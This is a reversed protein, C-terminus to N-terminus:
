NTGNQANTLQEFAYYLRLGEINMRRPDVDGIDVLEITKSLQQIYTVLQEAIKPSVVVGDRVTELAGGGVVLLGKIARIELENRELYSVLYEYLIGSFHNKAENLIDVVDHQTNGQMLYGTKFVERIAADSPVYDYEKSLRQKCISEINRGGKRLTDKSNLVLDSDKIQVIDTTGAGIDIVLVDGTEYIKNCARSELRGDRLAYMAAIFASAGEPVVITSVIKVPKTFEVPTLSRVYTISELKAKLEAAKKSHEAPPLLVGINFEVDGLDDVTCERVTAVVKLATILAMNITLDTVLQECKHQLSNPRIARASCERMVYKGQAYMLGGYEFSCTKENCYETPVSENLQVYQNSTTKFWTKGNYIIYFRTESNGLDTLVTIKEM